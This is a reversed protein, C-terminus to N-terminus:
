VFKLVESILYKPPIDAVTFIGCLGKQKMRHNAAAYALMVSATFHANSKLKLKFQACSLTDAAIVQGGHNNKNFYRRAFTQASIFHVETDQGAFYHPMNIISEKIAAHKGPEAVVFCVRKHKCDPNIHEGRKAKAVSDALPCTFQIADEVGDIQKIANTHGMSVGTGWFTHVAATSMISTLYIRLISFLGPDWGAAVINIHSTNKQKISEIYDALEAHTDFSDVTSFHKTINPVLPADGSSGTAILVVDIKGIFQEINELLVTGELRRRSFVAALEFEPREKILEIIAKGLKGVGVVAVKINM